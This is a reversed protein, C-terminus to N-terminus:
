AQFGSEDMLERVMGPGAGAELNGACFFCGAGVLAGRVSLGSGRRSSHSCFSPCKKKSTAFDGTCPQGAGPRKLSGPGGGALSRRGVTRIFYGEFRFEPTSHAPASFADPRRDPRSCSRCRRRDGHKDIRM